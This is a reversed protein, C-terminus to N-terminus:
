VRAVEISLVSRDELFTETAVDVVNASKTVVVNDTVTYLSESVGWARLERLLLWVFDGSVTIRYEKRTRKAM